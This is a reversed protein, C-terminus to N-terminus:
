PVARGPAPVDVVLLGGGRADAVFVRGRAADLALGFTDATAGVNVTDVAKGSQADLAWVYGGDSVYVRKRHAVIGGAEVLPLSYSGQVVDVLAAGEIRAIARTKPSVAYVAFAEGREDVTLGLALGLAGVDLRRAALGNRMDIAWVSKDGPTAAYLTDSDTDLALVFPARGVKLRQLIHGGELSVVAVTDAGAEAVYLMGRRLDLALGFPRALSEVQGIVCGTDGDFCAVRGARPYSACVRGGGAVLAGPEGRGDAALRGRVQLDAAVVAIAGDPQGVYARGTSQDVAVVPGHVAIRALLSMSGRQDPRSALRAAGTAGGSLPTATRTGPPTKTPTNTVSPPISTTATVSPTQSPTAAVPVAEILLIPLYFCFQGPTLTVSPTPTRTPTTARTATQTRTATLTAQSTATQTPTATPTDTRTASPTPSSPASPTSSPTATPLAVGCLDIVSITGDAYNAVYLRNLEHDVAVGQGGHDADQHGVAVTALLAGTASEVVYVRDNAADVAVLQATVPNAALAYAPGPLTATMVVQGSAVDVGNIRNALRSGVCVRGDLYAVGFAQPGTAVSQVGSDSVIAVSGAGMSAVYGKGGGAAALSPQGGVAGTAIVANATTDLVSVTNDEFNAVYARGNAAAVGFPSRGVDVRTIWTGARGDVVAVNNNLRSTIYVRGTAQDVGVGNPQSSGQPALSLSGLLALTQGDLTTLKSADLLAVHLRHTAVDVGLSKPHVGVAVTQVLAPVCSATASATATRTPTPSRTTTATATAPPTTTRTVTSTTALSPTPTPSPQAGALCDQIVSVTGAGYNAVFVRNLETDVAIGQGGHNPDQLCVTLTVVTGTPTDLMYVQNTTADVAFVRQTNPNAAAAYIPGPMPITQLLRHTSADVVAISQAGRHTVYVKGNLYAAGFAFYGTPVSAIDDASSLSYLAGSGTGTGASVVFGRGDAAVALAPRPGIQPSAIVTNFTTDIISVTGPEGDQGFNAVYARGGSAAVGFPLNGVGITTILSATRGNIVSVNRSDRNTVYVLGTASDVAVGNAHTGGTWVPASLSTYTRTDFIAVQSAEYLGVYLRHAVSDVAVGKPQSGVSFATEVTPICVVPTATVTSTAPPTSTGTQSPSATATAAGPEPTSTITPTRSPSRTPTTTPTAAAPVVVVSASAPAIVANSATASVNLTQSGTAYGARVQFTITLRGDPQYGPKYPIDRVYEYQKYPQNTQPNWWDFQWWNGSPDSLEYPTAARVEPWNTWTQYSADGQFAKRISEARFDDTVPPFGEFQYLSQYLQYGTETALVDFNHRGARSIQQLELIYSDITMEPYQATGSHINYWAPHNAPYPHTAWADWAWLTGPVTLMDWTYQVNNYNGGPALAGNLVKVRSDGLGHIADAAQVLFQGYAIPDPWQGGWEVILNPENLVQVYMACGSTLQSRLENVVNRFAWALSAYNGPTDAPPQEWYSGRFDTALRIIPTLQRNCAERVFRKWNEDVGTMGRVVPFFLQTVYGGNGTLISAHNLHETLLPDAPRDQIFTHIGYYNGLRKSPVVFDPIHTSDWTLASGSVNPNRDPWWSAIDNFSVSTSNSVYSFGSPLSVHVMLGSAAPTDANVLTATVSVLGGAPVSGPNASVSMTVVPGPSAAPLPAGTSVAVCLSVLVVVLCTVRRAASRILRGACSMRIVLYITCRVPNLIRM